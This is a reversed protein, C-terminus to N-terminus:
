LITVTTTGHTHIHLKRGGLADLGWFIRVFTSVTVRAFKKDSVVGSVCFVSVLLIWAM